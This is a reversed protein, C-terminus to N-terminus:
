STVATIRALDKALSYFSAEDISRFRHANALLNPIEEHERFIKMGLQDDSLANTQQIAKGLFEEPALTKAPKARVQSAM